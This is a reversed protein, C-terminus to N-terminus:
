KSCFFNLLNGMEIKENKVFGQEIYALFEKTTTTESVAGRFTEPITKQMVKFCMCNSRKWRSMDLKEDNTSDKTLAAPKDSQLAVDLNVLGLVIEL